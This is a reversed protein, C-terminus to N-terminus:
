SGEGVSRAGITAARGLATKATRSLAGYSMGAITVPVKLEIPKRAYRTGLLTRTECRERYGELPVRTLTCPVFTLDDFNPVRRYTSFGQLRYRGLQAKLQIDQIVARTWIQSPRLM